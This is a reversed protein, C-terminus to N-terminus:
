VVEAVSGEIDGSIMVGPFYGIVPAVGLVVNQLVTHELGHSGPARNGM